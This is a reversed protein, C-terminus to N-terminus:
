DNKLKSKLEKIEKELKNFREIDELKKNKCKDDEERESWAREEYFQSMSSGM